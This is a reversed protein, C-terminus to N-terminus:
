PKVKKELAAVKAELSAVKVTLIRIIEVLNFKATEKPQGIPPPRDGKVELSSDFMKLNKTTLVIDGGEIRIRANTGETNLGDPLTVPGNIKVGGPYDGAFNV